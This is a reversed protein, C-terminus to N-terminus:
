SADALRSDHLMQALAHALANTDFPKEWRPVHGYLPKMSDTDYGTSFVFLVGRKTLADALPYILEGHVNVDLVAADIRGAASLAQFADGMESIPGLIEAGLDQLAGVIEEAIFYEDEVVLVRRGALTPKTTASPPLPKM